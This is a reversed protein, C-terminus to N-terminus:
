TARADTDSTDSGSDPYLHQLDGPKVRAGDVFTDIDGPKLRIVRGIKYAILQGEDILRYLTRLTVGLAESAQKTSMWEGAAM